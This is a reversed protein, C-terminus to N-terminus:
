FAHYKFLVFIYLKYSFFATIYSVIVYSEPLLHLKLRNHTYNYAECILEKKKYNNEKLKLTTTNVEIFLDLYTKFSGGDIKSLYNKLETELYVNGNKQQFMIAKFSNNAHVRIFTNITHDICISNGYAIGIIFVLSDVGSIDFFDFIKLNDLFPERRIAMSSLNYDAHYKLSEKMNRRNARILKSKLILFDAHSHIKNLEDKSNFLEFNNHYLDVEPNENFTKIMQKIKNKAFLDDDELFAILKSNALKIGLKIKQSLPKLETKVLHLFIHDNNVKISLDINTIVFIEINFEDNNSEIVSNIAQSIFAKRNFVPIIISLDSEM